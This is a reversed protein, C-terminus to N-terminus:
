PVKDDHRSANEFFHQKHSAISAGNYFIAYYCRNVVAEFRKGQFLYQADEYFDEAKNIIKSVEEKM